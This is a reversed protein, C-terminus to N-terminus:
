DEEEWPIVAPATIIHDWAPYDETDDNSVVPNHHDGLVWTTGSLTGEGDWRWNVKRLPVWQDQNSPRYELWMTFDGSAYQYIAFGDLGALVPSDEAQLANSGVVERLPSGSATFM